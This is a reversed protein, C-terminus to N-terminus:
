IKEGKLSWTRTETIRVEAFRGVDARTGEFNVTKNGETRGTLMNPNTKSEGEVLIRQATGTLLVNAAKSIANQCVLLRDFRAQKEARTAGDPM